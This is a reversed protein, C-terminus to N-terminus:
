QVFAPPVHCHRVPVAQSSPLAQVWPSAQPPPVHWPVAIVQVEVAQVWRAHLPVALQVSVKRGPVVDHPV